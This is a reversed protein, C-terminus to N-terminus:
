NFFRIFFVQTGYHTALTKQMSHKDFPFLRWVQSLGKKYDFSLSACSNIVFFGIERTYGLFIPKRQSYKQSHIANQLSNSKHANKNWPLTFMSLLLLASMPTGWYKPSLNQILDLKLVDQRLPTDCLM